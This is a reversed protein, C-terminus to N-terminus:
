PQGQVCALTKAFKQRTRDEYWSYIGHMVAVNREFRSRCAQWSQKAHDAQTLLTRNNEIAAVIRDFPNEITDYSHDVIDDFVDLGLSRLHAVAGSGSLIIPFNCGYFAHATKETLMFQSSTFSSETVIEVFSDRYMNRLRNEFNGVNDNPMQGYTRYIEYEDVILDPNHNMLDFGALMIERIKDHEASFEWYIRDLFNTPRDHNPNELYSIVGNSAIGTGFLYSLMVIRHDRGHRNLSIFTKKSDFNKDLVPQLKSYQTRQNIWDGGWPIIHLNPQDFEKDLQEMSVFLIFQKDAHNRAMDSIVGTIFQRRNRWWNFDEEAWTELLDKIGIFVVPSSFPTNKLFNILINPPNSWIYYAENHQAHPGVLDVFLAHTFDDNHPQSITYITNEMM